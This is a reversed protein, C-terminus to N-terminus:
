RRQTLANIKGQLFAIHEYQAASVHGTAKQEASAAKQAEQMARNAQMLQKQLKRSESVAKQMSSTVSGDLRGKIAIALEMIRGAM